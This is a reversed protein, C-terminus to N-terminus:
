SMIQSLRKSPFGEYDGQRIWIQSVFKVDVAPLAAHLAQKDLLGDVTSPFFVLAMGMKPQVKIDLMPFHTHGGRTVDNLYILVTVVRQGGNSAFRQGDDNSLDFADYHQLYQQNPLYRGVQPLETHKWPKGTLAYVKQLLIPLDERALYCTSSTRSKSIEGSGPGVVPAPTFSDSAANILFSCETSTLFNDVTYVPPSVNLLRLGPYSTNVGNYTPAILPRDQVTLPFVRPISIPQQQQQQTVLPTPVHQQQLSHNVHHYHSPITITVPHKNLSYMGANYLANQHQQQQQQLLYAQLLLQQQQEITTCGLTVTSPNLQPAHNPFFQQQATNNHPQLQPQQNATTFLFQQQQPYQLQAQQPHYQQFLMQQQQSHMNNDNEEKQEQYNHNQSTSFSNIMSM